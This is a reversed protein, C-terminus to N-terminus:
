EPYDNLALVDGTELLVLRPHITQGTISHLARAYLALQGSYRDAVAQVNGNKVHDTKYDFLVIGDAAPLYGDIIGHILIQAADGAMEPFLRDAPVLMAFPVERKVAAANAQLAQGLDTAYFRAVNALNVHSAADATTVGRAVLDALKAEMVQSTVPQRLDLEHLLAHTATGIAAGDAATKDQMFQPTALEANVRNRWLNKAGNRDALEQLSPDSSFASKIESVSQFGTTTTAAAFPYKYQLWQDVDVDLAPQAIQSGTHKGRVDPAETFFQVSFETQDTTLAANINVAEPFSPHRVLSAGILDLESTADLRSALPLVLEDTAALANWKAVTEAAAGTNGVVFLRQEARTLAVYLVRMNEAQESQQKAAQELTLQPTPITLQRDEDFWNIGIGNKSLVVGNDGHGGRFHRSTNMLFVIPFQLGKSGHITMLNVANTNPDLVVPTALDQDRNMMLEIFHVFAFVGRFGGEEYTHAREYLAHLNAQRQKGGPLGGVFDLYGTDHYIAWILDVLQNTQALDRWSNLQSAFRAAKAYTRSALPTATNADFDRCFETFATYYPASKDKLRIVALEDANMDVIPSRLVAVLPIEQQPNDIVRLLSLMVQLETTKFYNQANTIVIPIGADAFVQQLVLNQSRTPELLTIDRYEIPRMTGTKRDFIQSASGVLQNIREAVIRVQAEDKDVAPGDDEADKDPAYLLVETAPRYTGYDTAGYQLKEAGTYSIAGVQQDMIQTFILNTFELINQSSRFNDALTIHEGRQKFAEQVGTDVEAYADYKDMFMSPDALRFGYISQKVDGVMFRNGPKPQSVANLLAEQLPNTDQYEDVLVVDFSDRYADGVRVGTDPDKTTLITLAAQEIDGFDMTHRRRKESAYATLFAGAVKSLERVVAGAGTLTQTLDTAPLQLLPLVHKTFIKHANDRLNKATDKQEKLVEDKVRATSWSPWKQNDNTATFLYHYDNGLQDVIADIRQEDAALIGDWKALEDGATNTRAKHLLTTIERLAPEIAMALQNVFPSGANLDATYTDPLHDVWSKPDTTTMAYTYLRMILDGLIDDHWGTAFNRTLRNFETADTTYFEERLDDWVQEEIMLAETQDALIRFNPDLNAVYYYQQVVQLAFADLTSIPASAVLGIQQTLHQRQAPSMVNRKETLYQKLATDIKAKMEAAAANTFTVVLMRTVDGGALIQRRIREVLVATKGSGASASVLVNHSGTAPEQTFDPTGDMIAQEQAKTYNPEDTM